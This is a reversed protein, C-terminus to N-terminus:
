GTRGSSTAASSAEASMIQVTDPVYTKNILLHVFNHIKKTNIKTNREKFFVYLCNLDQFLSITDNWEIGSTYKVPTLFDRPYDDHMIYKKVDEVDLDINYKLLSIPLFKVENHIMNKRLTFLINEKNIQGESLIMKESKVHFM